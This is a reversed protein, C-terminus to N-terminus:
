MNSITESSVVSTDPKQAVVDEEDDLCSTDSQQQREEKNTSNQPLVDVFVLILKIIFKIFFLKIYNFINVYTTCKIRNLNM